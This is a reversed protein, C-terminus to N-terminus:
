TLHKPINSEKDWYGSKYLDYLVKYRPAVMPDNGIDELWKIFQEGKFGALKKYFFPIIIDKHEALSRVIFKAGYGRNYGDGLYPKSIYINSRIGLYEATELLLWRDRVNMAITFVPMKQKSVKGAKKVPFTHFTFCGEGDTLGRIYDNSLRYHIFKSADSQKGSEKNIM